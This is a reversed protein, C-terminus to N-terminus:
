VSSSVVTPALRVRVHVAWAPCRGGSSLSASIASRVRLAIPQAFGIARHRAVQSKHARAPEHLEHDVLYPLSQAAPAPPPDVRAVRIWAVRL